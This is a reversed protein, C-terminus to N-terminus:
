YEATRLCTQHRRQREQRGITLRARYKNLGQNKQGDPQDKIEYDKKRVLLALFSKL